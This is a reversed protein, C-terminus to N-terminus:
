KRNANKDGCVPHTLPTKVDGVDSSESARQEGLRSLRLEYTSEM